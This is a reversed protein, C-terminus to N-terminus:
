LKDLSEEIDGKPPRTLPPPCDLDDINDNAFELAKEKIIIGDLLIKQSRKGVCKYTTTDVKEYNECCTNKRKNKVRSVFKRTLKRKAPAM